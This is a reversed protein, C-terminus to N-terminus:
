LAIEPPTKDSPTGAPPLSSTDGGGGTQQAPAPVTFSADAGNSTGYVSTAVVRYHYTGPALGGLVAAVGQGDGGAALSAGDITQGAATTPAFEFHGTAGVGNRPAVVGNLTVGSTSIGTAPTSIAIPLEVPVVTVGAADTTTAVALDPSAPALSSGGGGG